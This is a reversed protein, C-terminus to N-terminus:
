QLAGLRSLHKICYRTRWLIFYLRRVYLLVCTELYLWDEFRCSFNERRYVKSAMLIWRGFLCKNKLSMNEDEKVYKLFTKLYNTIAEFSSEETQIDNIFTRPENNHTLYM